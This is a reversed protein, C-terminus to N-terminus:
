GAVAARTDVLHKKIWREAPLGLALGVMETLFFIPMSEGPKQRSDLNTQCLPCATVIAQAGARRAANIIKAVLRAVLDPQSIALSAGCCETKHTWAVTTAGLKQLLNDMLQPQEPNAEFSVIKPPRTLLCGYYAALKMDTLPRRLNAKILELVAPDNLVDIIHRVRISGKYSRGVIAAVEGGLRVAEESGQSMFYQTQRLTNYCAACPVVLDLGEAEALILNRLPLAHTLFGSLSHGSTAGCCNWDPLEALKVGLAEFVTETSAAYESATSHLSCGPYYGLKM